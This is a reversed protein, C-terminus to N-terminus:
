TLALAAAMWIAGVSAAACGVYSITLAPRSDGVVRGVVITLCAVITIWGGVWALGTM